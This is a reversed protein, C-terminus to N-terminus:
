AVVKALHFGCILHSYAYLGSPISGLIPPCSTFYAGDPCFCNFEQRTWDYGCRGGSKNCNECQLTDAIWTIEFGKSLVESITASHSGGESPPPTLPQAESSTLVLVSFNCLKPLPNALDVDPAFYGDGSTPCSFRYPRPTSSSNCDYFLASNLYTFAYNFLSFNLTTNVYTQLCLDELLDMRAVVLIQTSRNTHIVRYEQSVMSLTLNYGDCGLEYGPYGCYSPQENHRFPYSIQQDGCDFPACEQYQLFDGSAAVRFHIQVSIIFVLSLPSRSM